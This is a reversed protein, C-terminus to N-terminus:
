QKPSFYSPRSNTETLQATRSEPYDGHNGSWPNLRSCNNEGNKKRGTAPIELIFRRRRSHGPVPLPTNRGRTGPCNLLRHFSPPDAPNLDAVKILQTFLPPNEQNVNARGEEELKSM